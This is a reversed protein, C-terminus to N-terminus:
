SSKVSQRPYNLPLVRRFFRRGDRVRPHNSRARLKAELSKIRTLGHLGRNFKTQSTESSRLRVSEVRIRESTRILTLGHGDTTLVGTANTEAVPPNFYNSPTARLIM